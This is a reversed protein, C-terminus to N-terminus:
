SSVFFFLSDLIRKRIASGLNGLQYVLISIYRDLFFNTGAFIFRERQDDAIAAM